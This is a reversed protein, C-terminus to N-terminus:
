SLLHICSRTSMLTMIYVKNRSRMLVEEGDERNPPSYALQDARQYIGNWESEKSKRWSTSPQNELKIEHIKRECIAQGRIALKEQGVSTVGAVQERESFMPHRYVMNVM